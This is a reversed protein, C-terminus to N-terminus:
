NPEQCESLLVSRIAAAEEAMEEESRDVRESDPPVHLGQRGESGAGSDSV